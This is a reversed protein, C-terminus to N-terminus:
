YHGLGTNPASISTVGLGVPDVIIGNAEGDIDLLGGDTIQYTVKLVWASHITVTSFSAGPVAFYADTNTNHKRLDFNGSTNYYYLSITSTYGPDGCDATFGVFGEPYSYGSDKAAFQSGSPTAVEQIECDEAVELAITKGTSGNMFGRVHAQEVDPITDGNLDEDGDENETDLEISFPDAGVNGNKFFPYGDNTDTVFAWISEFDWPDGGFNFYANNTGNFTTIDKMLATTIGTVRDPQSCDYGGGGCPDTTGSTQIDWFNGSLSGGSWSVFGYEDSSLGTSYSNVIPASNDGAFGGNGCEVDYVSSRSFSNSIEGDANYGVFGGVACYSEVGADVEGSDDNYSYSIEITGSNIGVFGGAYLNDAYVHGTAYSRSITGMLQNAGVFGGINELGSVAGTAHSNTISGEQLEGVLGGINVLGEVNGTAYSNDITADEGMFGVLGGISTNNGDIDVDARSSSLVASSGSMEGVLGGLYATGYVQGAVHVHDILGFSSGVLLATYAGGEVLANDILLNKIVGGSGLHSFLGGSANGIYLDNVTYGRGDLQGQFQLDSDGISRFGEDENWGVTAACDINKTLAYYAEVDESIAQLQECDAILYPTAESGDGGTFAEGVASVKTAPVVAALSLSVLLGVVAFVHTARRVYTGM